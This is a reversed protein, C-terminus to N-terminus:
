DPPGLEPGALEKYAQNVRQLVTISALVSIAIIGIEIFGAVTSSVVILLREPREAIGVKMDAGESEGRARAYSVLISSAIAWLGWFTSCLGALVISSLVLMEGVKDILSDCFGGFKTAEGYLRAIAGDLADFFGSLLLLVAAPLLLSRDNSSFYYCVSAGIALLMGLSSTSMPTFGFSHFQKAHFDFFGKSAKKLRTLMSTGM